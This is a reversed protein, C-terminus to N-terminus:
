FEISMGAGIVFVAGAGSLKEELYGVAKEGTCHCSYVASVSYEWLVEFTEQFATQSTTLLHLGGIVAHLSKLGTVDRLRHLTNALGSHCCCLILVPSQQYPGGPM